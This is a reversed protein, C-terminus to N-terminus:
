QSQWLCITALASLLGPFRRAFLAAFALSRGHIWTQWSRELLADDFPAPLRSSLARDNMYEQATSTAAKKHMM